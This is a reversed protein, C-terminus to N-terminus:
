KERKLTEPVKFAFIVTIAAVIISIMFPTVPSINEYLFGSVLQSIALTLDWILSIIAFCRGRLEKPILDTEIAQFANMFFGFGIYTLISWFLLYGVAKNGMPALVFAVLGMLNSIIGTLLSIKRGAKDALYGAIVTAIFSAVNGYFIVYGWTDLTIELYFLAYYQSLFSLGTSIALLAYVVVLVKMNRFIYRISYGYESFVQSFGGRVTKDGSVKLTERLFLARFTATIAGTLFASLFMLKQAGVLDGNSMGLFFLAIMPSFITMFSPILNIFAYGRGRVKMPLSDAVIAWLAPQYLLLISAFIEIWLVDWWTTAFYFLLYTSSYLYTLIVVLKKRGLLDALYGGLLRSLVISVTSLFFIFSIITPTANLAKLFAQFYIWCASQFPSWLTWGVLLTLLNEWYIKDEHTNSGNKM